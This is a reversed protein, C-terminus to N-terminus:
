WLLADTWVCHYPINFRRFKMCLGNLCVCTMFSVFSDYRCVVTLLHIIYLWGVKWIENTSCKALPGPHLFPTNQCLYKAFLLMGTWSSFCLIKLSLPPLACNEIWSLCGVYPAFHWFVICTQTLYCFLLFDAVAWRQWTQEKTCPLRVTWWLCLLWLRLLLSSHSRYSFFHPESSWILPFVYFFWVNLCSDSTFLVMCKSFDNPDVGPLARILLPLMHTPGEPFREGGSVLSRAVGIMCSLTATLQHPETLTELAPYTRRCVVTIHWKSLFIHSSTILLNM